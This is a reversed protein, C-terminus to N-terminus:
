VTETIRASQWFLQIFAGIFLAVVAWLIVLLPYLGFLGVEIGRWHEIEGFELVSSFLTSIVVAMAVSQMVGIWFLRRVVDLMNHWDLNRVTQFVRYADYQLYSWSALLAVGGLVGLSFLPINIGMIWSTQDFILVAFGTLIAGLLRPFYLQFYPLHDRGSKMLILALFVLFFAYLIALCVFTIPQMYLAFDDLTESLNVIAPLMTIITFLLFGLSVGMSRRYLNIAIGLLFNEAQREFLSAAARIGNVTKSVLLVHSQSLLSPGRYQLAQELTHAAEEFDHVNLYYSACVIAMQRFLSTPINEWTAKKLITKLNRKRQIYDGPEWHWYHELSDKFGQLGAESIVLFERIHRQFEIKDLLTHIRDTESLALLAQCFEHLYQGEESRPDVSKLFYPLKRIIRELDMQRMKEATGDEATSLLISKIQHQYSQRCDERKDLARLGTLILEENVLSRTLFRVTVENERTRTFNFDYSFHKWIIRYEVMCHDYWGRSEVLHLLAIGTERYRPLDADAISHGEGIWRGFEQVIREVKGRIGPEDASVRQELRLLIQERSLERIGGLSLLPTHGVHLTLVMDQTDWTLDM